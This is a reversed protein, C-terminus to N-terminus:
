EDGKDPTITVGAPPQVKVRGGNSTAIDALHIYKDLAAQGLIYGSEVFGAVVIIAMMIWFVEDSLRASNWGWVLTFAALVKWTSEAILFAVFKRSKFNSDGNM